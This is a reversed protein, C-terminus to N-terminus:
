FHSKVLKFMDSHLQIAESLIPYTKQKATTQEDFKALVMRFDTVIAETYLCLSIYLGLSVTLFIFYFIGGTLLNVWLVYFGCYTKRDM